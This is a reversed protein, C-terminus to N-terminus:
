ALKSFMRLIQEFSGGVEMRYGMFNPFVPLLGSLFLVAPHGMRTKLVNEFIATSSLLLTNIIFEVM